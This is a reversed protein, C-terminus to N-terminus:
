EDINLKGMIKALNVKIEMLQDMVKSNVLGHEAKAIKLDEKVEQVDHSNQKTVSELRILWATSTIIAVIVVWAVNFSEATINM